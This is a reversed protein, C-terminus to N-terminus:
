MRKWTEQGELSYRRMYVGWAAPHYRLEYSSLTHICPYPYTKSGQFTGVLSLKSIFALSSNSPLLHFEVKLNSSLSFGVVAVPVFRDLRLLKHQAAQVLAVTNAWDSPHIHCASSIQRGYYPTTSCREISSLILRSTSQHDESM